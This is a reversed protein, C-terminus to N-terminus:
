QDSDSIFYEATLERLAKVPEGSIVPITFYFTSGEGPESELWIRGGHREVIRKSIALGIGTGPYDERGHLQQFIVFIREHYQRDIGIGNDQVSFEWFVESTESVESTKNASIHVHPPEESRFKIANGILNQFLQVLQAEDAMVTPLEDNTVLANSEEIAVNLNVRAQGLVSNCDTSEFPKGRTGVRSYALLDNILCQMRNAGDVAYAIFDDADADLQDKYRRALLQTYSSVMRLPEQLDHSAVYAFQELEQNSRELDAQARKREAIEMKLDQNAQEAVRRAEDADMMMNLAATRSDELESLTQKLIEEARKRETIDQGTALLGVVNGEADKLTKDYWEIQRERGDKTIIPNVNGRTQIDSVAQRFLERISTTNRESLFTTFWDQDQVEELHYGSIEEMYPNFRVIRGETDLVLVIVQATEVLKEAFDREQRLTEEARVRETIERNLEDRSATIAKLNVTMQNFARSLRGIEDRARVEIRYDLNGRGIEEAGVVLQRVPGTITRAFFVGLLAVILAVGLGIGLVVNRFATIPVFAETRDEETLICLEREPMWRYAGIVPVGRYDDYFGVGDKHQLCAEVGETHVAKKLAFDEGFRPETVFFNFANVLYTEETASLGSRQMMIDSMEALDVRGALVAILNGDKDTIPTGITMAAEGLTLSYYVNQMYTRSKGQVFYSQSERYKGEQEQETSAVILGDSARLIFLELFGGPEEVIPKMRDQVISRYSAQYEPDARDHVLLVPTHERVGPRRAFQRLNRENDQVWRNFEDEKLITVSILRNFTDQEITRRGNDYALYSVVALPITTLLLFLIILKTALKMM